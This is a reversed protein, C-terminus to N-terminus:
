FNSKLISKKVEFTPEFILWFYTNYFDPSIMKNNCNRYLEVNLLNNFDITLFTRKNEMSIRLSRSKIEQGIKDLKELTEKKFDCEYSKDKLSGNTFYKENYVDGGDFRWGISCQYGNSELTEFIFMNFLYKYYMPVQNKCTGIGNIYKSSGYVIYRLESLKGNTFTYLLTSLTSEGINVNEFRVENEKIIPNLPYESKIVEDITSGWKVGRVDNQSYISLGNIFLLIFLYKKMM